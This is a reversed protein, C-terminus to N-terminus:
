CFLQRSLLTQFLSAPLCAPGAWRCYTLAVSCLSPLPLKSEFSVTQSGAERLCKVFQVLSPSTHAAGGFPPLPPHRVERDKYESTRLAHTVGELADVFPCALDYTPYVQLRVAWSQKPAACPPLPLSPGRAPQSDAPAPVVAAARIRQMWPWGASAAAPFPPRSRAQPLAPAQCTHLRLVHWTHTCRLHPMDCQHNLAPDHSPTGARVWFWHSREAQLHRSATDRSCTM